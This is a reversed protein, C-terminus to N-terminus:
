RFRVSYLLGSNYTSVISNTKDVHVLNFNGLTNVPNISSKKYVSMINNIYLFIM